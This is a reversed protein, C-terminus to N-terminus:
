LIMMPSSFLALLHLMTPSHTPFINSSIIGSVNSTADEAVSDPSDEVYHSPNLMDEIQLKLKSINWSDLINTLCVM